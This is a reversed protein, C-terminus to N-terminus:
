FKEMADYTLQELDVYRLGSELRAYTGTLPSNSKFERLKLPILYQDGSSQEWAMLQEGPFDTVDVDVASGDPMVAPVVGPVSAYQHVLDRIRDADLPSVGGQKDAVPTNADIVIAHELIFDPRLQEHLAVTEVIPTDTKAANYLHERVKMAKGVVGTPLEQRQGSYTFSDQLQLYNGAIAEIQSYTLTDLYSYSQGDLSMYNEADSRLGDGAYEMWVTNDTDLHPGTVTFARWDKFETPTLATHLPWDVWGDDTNFQCNPDTTPNPNGRPLLCWQVDGDQFGVFLRDNENNYSTIGMSTVQKGVWRKIAGHYATTFVVDPEGSFEPPVWSGLKSLYSNGSIPDYQAIYNFWTEHGASAVVPGKVESNNMVFREPGVLQIEERGFTGLTMRYFGGSIPVWIANAWHQANVGNSLKPSWTVGPFLDKDLSPSATPDLSHVGLETFIFLMNTTTCGWNTQGYGEGVDIAGAWNGGVGTGNDTGAMPDTSCKSLYTNWYRWLEERLRVFGFAPYPGQTWTNASGIYQWFHQPAGSSDQWGVYLADVPTTSQDRFRDVQHIVAGAGLDKLTTWSEDTNLQNVYQGCIAMFHLKGDSGIAEVFGSVPGTNTPKNINFFPGKFAWGCSCDVNICDLYRTAKTPLQIACGAGGFLWRFPYAKEMYPAYSSYDYDTPVVSDLPRPRSSVMRGSQPDPRLRIGLSGLIMDWPWPRRRSFPGPM